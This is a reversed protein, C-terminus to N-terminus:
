LPLWKIKRLDRKTHGRVYIRKGNRIRYHGMVRIKKKIKM